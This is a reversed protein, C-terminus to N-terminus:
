FMLRQQSQAYFHNSQEKAAAGGWFMYIPAIV